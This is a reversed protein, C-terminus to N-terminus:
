PTIYYRNEIKKIKKEIINIEKDLNIINKKIIKLENLLIKKNNKKNKIANTITNIQKLSKKNKNKNKNLEKKNNEKKIILHSLLKIKNELKFMKKGTNLLKKIKSKLEKKMLRLEKDLLKFKNLNGGASYPRERIRIPAQRNEPDRSTPAPLSFSNQSHVSFLFLLWDHLKIEIDNLIHVKSINRLSSKKDLSSKLLKFRRITDKINEKVNKQNFPINNIIDYINKKETFLKQLLIEINDNNDNYIKLIEKININNVLKKFLLIGLQKLNKKILEDLESLNFESLNLLIPILYLIKLYFKIDEEHIDYDYDIDNDIYIDTDDLHDKNSDNKLPKFLYKNILYLYEYYNDDQRSSISNLPQSKSNM